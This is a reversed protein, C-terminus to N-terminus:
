PTVLPRLDALRRAGIGTVQRLQDVSTFGGHQTRFEVIHRALVPGVGPLADLQQETATSLSVPGGALGPPGGSGAGGGAGGGGTPGGGSVGGTTGAGPEGVLIQEGDTLLRAQNLGRLETGRLAGGAATLADTVRSGAPLRHIGPHRVKGAVDVVVMRVAGGPPGGTTPGRPSTDASAWTPGPPRAGPGPAAIPREAGPASVREPTAAWFHQVAFGVAVVLVLALAALAKSDTGCRLQLWLPLRERVASRWREVRRVAPPDHERRPPARHAHSPEGRTDFPGPGGSPGHPDRAAGRGRSGEGIAGPAPGEGEGEGAGPRDARDGQAPRGSGGGPDQGSPDDRGAGSAGEEDGDRGGAELGAGFIVAARARMRERKWQRARERERKGWRAFPAASTMAGASPGSGGGSQESASLSVSASTADPSFATRFTNM